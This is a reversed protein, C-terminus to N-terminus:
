VHAYAESYEGYIKRFEERARFLDSEVAKVTRGLEQAIDRVKKKDVYKLLLLERYESSLQAIVNRVKESIEHSDHLFLNGLADEEGLIMEGIPFLRIAKKAYMKRYYDAIEHRLISQMWTWLQSNGKFFHLNKLCNLFTEQVIEEAIEERSIKKLALKMMLPFYHQFWKKVAKPNGAKLQSVLRVENHNKLSM